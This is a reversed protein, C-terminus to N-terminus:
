RSTVMLDKETEKRYILENMDNRKVTLSQALVVGCAEQSRDLAM